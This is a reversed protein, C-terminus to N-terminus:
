SASRACNGCLGTIEVTHDVDTYGHDAATREAWREVAPAQLEVTAGCSRCVLHHHHHEAQCRRYIAEGDVTRLVDVEGSRALSQLTRYATALSVSERRDQLRRHLDQASVFDELDQLAASVARRQKTSRVEPQGTARGSM